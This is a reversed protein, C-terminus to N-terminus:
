SRVFSLIYRCRIGCTSRILANFYPEWKNMINLLILYIRVLGIGWLIRPVILRKRNAFQIRTIEAQDKQVIRQSELTRWIALATLATLIVLVWDSVTGWVESLFPRSAADSESYYGLTQALIGVGIILFICVIAWLIHTIKIKYLFRAKM